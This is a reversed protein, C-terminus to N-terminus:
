GTAPPEIEGAATLRKVTELIRRRARRVSGASPPGGVAMEERLIESARSSMNDYYRATVEESAGSLACALDMTDLDRLLRQISRNSLRGTDEFQLALARIADFARPDTAHIEHLVAEARMTSLSDLIAVVAWVDCPPGGEGAELALWGDFIRREVAAVEDQSVPNGDLMSRCAEAALRIPLAALVRAALRPELGATFAGVMRAPEAALLGAVLNPNM